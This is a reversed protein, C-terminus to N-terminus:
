IRWDPPEQNSSNNLRFNSSRHDVPVILVSQSRVFNLLGYLMVSGGLILLLSTETILM